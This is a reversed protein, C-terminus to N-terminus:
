TGSNKWGDLLVMNNRMKREKIKKACDAPVTFNM